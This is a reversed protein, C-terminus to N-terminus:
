KLQVTWSCLFKIFHTGYPMKKVMGLTEPLGPYGVDGKEGKVGLSEGEDTKISHIYNKICTKKKNSKFKCNHLMEYIYGAKVHQQQQDAFFSM